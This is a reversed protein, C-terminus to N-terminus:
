WSGQMEKLSAEAGLGEGMELLEFQAWTAQSSRKM